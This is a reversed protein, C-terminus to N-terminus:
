GISAVHEAGDISMASNAQSMDNADTRSIQNSTGAVSLVQMEIGADEAVRFPFRKSFPLFIIITYKGPIKKSVKQRNGYIM